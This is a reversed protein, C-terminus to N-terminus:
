IKGYQAIIKQVLTRVDYQDRVKKSLAAMIENKNPMNIFSSIKATLENPNDFAFIFILAYEGLLNKFATNSTFVARGAALSELVVKDMGGDPTANITLSAERYAEISSRISKWRVQADIGLEKILSELYKKYERDAKTVPAGTFDVHEVPLNKVARLITDLHKIETIRGIHGIVLQQNFDVPPLNFADVDIGHGMIHLKNTQLRFGEPSATFVIDSLFTAMRLKFNVQRHTYWLAIKKHWLKWLLGGLIIYEPNMHVFVVDYNKREKWIYHYFRSIYKLRSAGVEKGLSLVRVNKPLTHKGEELCIVTVLSCHKAFEEIWRYFFFFEPDDKNVKQTVILLKM